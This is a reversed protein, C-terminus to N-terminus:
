IEGSTAPLKGHAGIDAIQEVDPHRLGDEFCAAAIKRAFTPSMGGWCVEMLLLAAVASESSHKTSSRSSGKGLLPNSMQQRVGGQSLQATRPSRSRSRHKGGKAM